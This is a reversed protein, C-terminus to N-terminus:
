GRGGGAVGQGAPGYGKAREPLIQISQRRIHFIVGWGIIEAFKAIELRVLDDYM